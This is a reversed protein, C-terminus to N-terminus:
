LVLFLVSIIHLTSHHLLLCVIPLVFKIAKKNNSKQPQKDLTAGCEKCEIDTRHNKFGCYACVYHKNM